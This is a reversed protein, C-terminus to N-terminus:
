VCVRQCVTVCVRTVRAFGRHYFALFPRTSAVVMYRFLVYAVYCLLCVFVSVFVCALVCLGVCAPQTPKLLGQLTPYPRTRTTVRHPTMDDHWIM